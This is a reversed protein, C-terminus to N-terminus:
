DCRPACKHLREIEALYNNMQIIMASETTASLYTTFYYRATAMCKPTEIKNILEVARAPTKINEKAIAFYQESVNSINESLCLSKDPTSTAGGTRGTGSGKCLAIAGIIVIMVAVIAFKLSNSKTDSSTPVPASKEQEIQGTKKAQFGQGCKECFFAHDTNEAGCKQCYKM